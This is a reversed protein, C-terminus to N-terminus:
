VRALWARIRLFGEIVRAMDLRASHFTGHAITNRANHLQMERKWEGGDKELVADVPERGGPWAKSWRGLPSGGLSVDGVPGAGRCDVPRARMCIAASYDLVTNM